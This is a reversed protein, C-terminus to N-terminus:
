PWNPNGILGLANVHQLVLRYMGQRRRQYGRDPDDKGVTNHILNAESVSWCWAETIFEALAASPGRTLDADLPDDEVYLVKM